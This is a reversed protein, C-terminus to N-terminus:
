VVRQFKTTSLLGLLIKPTSTKFTKLGSCLPPPIPYPSPLASASWGQQAM